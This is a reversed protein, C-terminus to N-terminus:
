FPHSAQEGQSSSTAPGVSSRLIRANVRRLLRADSVLSRRLARLLLFGLAAGTTNLLVDDTSTTRSLPLLFQLTEIVISFGAALLVIRKASNLPHIARPVFLGFPLFLALNSVAEARFTGIHSGSTVIRRLDTLPVLSVTAHRHGMPLLTLFLIGAVSSIALIDRTTM